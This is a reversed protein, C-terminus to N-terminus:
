RGLLRDIARRARAPAAPDRHLQVAQGAALAV